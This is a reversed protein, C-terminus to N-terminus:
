PDAIADEKLIPTEFISEDCPLTGQPCYLEGQGNDIPRQVKHFPDASRDGCVKYGNLVPLFMSPIAERTECKTSEARDGDCAQGISTSFGSASSCFCVIELGQWYDSIVLAPHSAPCEDEARVITVATFPNTEWDRKIEFYEDLDLLVKNRMSRMVLYSIGSFCAFLIALCASIHVTRNCHKGM